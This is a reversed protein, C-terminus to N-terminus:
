EDAETMAKLKYVLQDLDDSRLEEIEGRDCFGAFSPDLPLRGVIDLGKSAAYADIGSEGFVPVMEGCHPCKMYSMNEVIGIVPINMMAAMKVAKDVIM